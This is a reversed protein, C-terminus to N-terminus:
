SKVVPQALKRFDQQSYSRAEKPDITHAINLRKLAAVCWRSCPALILFCGKGAATKEASLSGSRATDFEAWVTDLDKSELLNLPSYDGAPQSHM